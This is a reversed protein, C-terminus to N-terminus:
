WPLPTSKTEEPHVPIQHFADKFDLGFFVLPFGRVKPVLAAADNAVDTIRPLVLREELHVLSNVGSRRFDWILRHKLEGNPKQKTILALKSAIFNDSNLHARVEAASSLKVAWEQQVM